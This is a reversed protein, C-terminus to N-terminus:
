VRAEWAASRAVTLCNRSFCVCSLHKVNPFSVFAVLPAYMTSAISRTFTRISFPHLRNSSSAPTGTTSTHWNHINSQLIHVTRSRSWHTCTLAGKSWQKNTYSTSVGWLSESSSTVSCPTSSSHQSYCTDCWACHTDISVTGSTVACKGHGRAIHRPTSSPCNTHKILPALLAVCTTTLLARKIKRPFIETVAKFWM